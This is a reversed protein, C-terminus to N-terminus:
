KGFGKEIGPTWDEDSVGGRVVTIGGAALEAWGDGGEPTRLDIRPGPATGIFFYPQGDKLLRGDPAVSFKVPGAAAVAIAASGLLVCMALMVFLRGKCVDKTEQM